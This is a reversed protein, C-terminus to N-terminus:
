SQRHAETGNIMNLQYSWLGIYEHMAIVSTTLEALSPWYNLLSSKYKQTRYGMPAPIIKVGAQKFAYMSRPMHWANTVLFITDIKHKKFLAELLCAEDATNISKDEKLLNSIKFDKNLVEAMLDAESYLEAHPRGGSVVILLHTKDYLDAAYQLRSLTIESVSYHNKHNPIQTIGAGLVVIATRNSHSPLASIQLQSYQNQLKNILQWSVLPTCLLWFSIVAVVILSKGLIPRRRWLLIGIFIALFNLHPPFILAQISHLASFVTM